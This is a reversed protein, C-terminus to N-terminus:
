NSLSLNSPVNKTWDGPRRGASLASAPNSPAADAAVKDSIRVDHKRASWISVSLSVLMARESLPNPTITMIPFGQSTHPCLGSSSRFSLVDPSLPATRSLGAPSPRTVPSIWCARPRRSSWSHETNAPCGTPTAPSPRSIRSPRAALSAPPSPACRLPNTRSRRPPPISRFVRLFGTFEIAAGRGVTGEYLAFEVDGPPTAVLIHSVSAWARPSPFAKEAPEFQHLLEPRWRLFAVVEPRLNGPGM